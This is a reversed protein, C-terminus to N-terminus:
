GGDLGFFHLVILVSGLLDLWITMWLSDDHPQWAVKEVEGADSLFARPWNRPAM